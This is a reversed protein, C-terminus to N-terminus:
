IREARTSQSPIDGVSDIKKKLLTLPIMEFSDEGEWHSKLVEGNLSFRVFLEKRKDAVNEVEILELLLHSAYEPWIAPQELRYACLLGILTSDHASWITLAPENTHNLLYDVQRSTVTHMALYALRPHRLTQFWRWATHEAIVEQDEKTIGPPLMDRVSLCKTLEALQNWQLPQFQFENSRM